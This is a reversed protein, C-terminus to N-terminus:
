EAGWEDDQSEASTPSPGAPAKGKGKGKGAKGPAAAPAQNTVEAAALDERGAPVAHGNAVLQDAVLDPLEVVSDAPFNGHEGGMPDRLKVLKM